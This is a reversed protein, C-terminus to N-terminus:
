EGRMGYNAAVLSFDQGDIVGDDNLDAPLRAKGEPAARGYNPALTSLDHDDVVNDGNLDGSPMPGLTAQVVQPSGGSQHVSSGIITDRQLYSLTGEGTARMDYVGERILEQPIDRIVFGGNDDAQLNTFTALPVDSGGQWAPISGQNWVEIRFRKTFPRYSDPDGPVDSWVQGELRVREADPGVTVQALTKRNSLNVPSPEGSSGQLVLKSTTPGASDTVVRATGVGSGRLTLMGLMVGDGTGLRLHPIAEDGAEDALLTVAFELRREQESYTNKVRYYRGASSVAQNVANIPNLDTLAAQPRGQERFPLGTAEWDPFAAVDDGTIELRLYWAILSQAPEVGTSDPLRVFLALTVEEGPALNVERQCPSVDIRCLTFTPSLQGSQSASAQVLAM